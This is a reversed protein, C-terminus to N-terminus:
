GNLAKKTIVRAIGSLEAPNPHIISKGEQRAMWAIKEASAATKGGIVLVYETGTFYAKKLGFGRWMENTFSFNKFSTPLNNIQRFQQYSLTRHAASLAKVKSDAAASRSRGVYFFAPAQRTSYHSFQSGDSSQGSNIVRDAIDACLDAGVSAVYTSLGGRLRKEINDIQLIAEPITM